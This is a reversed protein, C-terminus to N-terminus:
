VIPEVLMLTGTAFVTQCGDSRVSGTANVSFDATTAKPITIPSVFKTEVSVHTVASGTSANTVTTAAFDPKGTDNAEREVEVQTTEPTTTFTNRAPRHVM